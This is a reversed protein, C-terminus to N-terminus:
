LQKKQPPGVKYNGRKWVPQPLNRMKESERSTHFVPTHVPMAQQGDLRRTSWPAFGPLTCLHHNFVAFMDPQHFFDQVLRPHILGHLYHTMSDNVM